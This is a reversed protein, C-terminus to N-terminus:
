MDPTNKTIIDRNVTYKDAFPKRYKKIFDSPKMGFQKSFQERFYRADYIGVATAVENVNQDSDIFLRAAKRLRVFRIFSNLSHGAEVQQAHEATNQWLIEASSLDLALPGADSFVGIAETTGDGDLDAFAYSDAHDHHDYFLGSIDWIESGDDDLLMFGALIEDKGDRDADFTRDDLTPHRDFKNAVSDGDDDGLDSRGPVVDAANSVGDGDCDEAADFRAYCALTRTGADAADSITSAPPKSPTDQGCGAIAVAVMCLM